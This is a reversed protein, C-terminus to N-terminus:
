VPEVTYGQIRVSLSREIPELSIVLSRDDNHASLIGEMGDLAGGRIRVRQGVKLFPQEEFAVNSALLTRIDQIQNEPIASGFGNIGVFGAVGHTKLVQLREGTSFCVRVFNYGSFLPLEVEKVRDSWKRSRKILPLFNEIGQKELQDSVMKEHRSRTRIAYWQPQYMPVANAVANEVIISEYGRGVAQSSSM